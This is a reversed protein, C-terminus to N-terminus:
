LCEFTHTLQKIYSLQTQQIALLEKDKERFQYVLRRYFLAVNLRKEIVLFIQQFNLHM